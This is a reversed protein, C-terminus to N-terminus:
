IYGWFSPWGRTSAILSCPSDIRCSIPFCVRLQSSLAFLTRLRWAFLVLYLMDVAVSDLTLRRLAGLSVRQVKRTLSTKLILQESSSITNSNLIITFELYQFKVSFEGLLIISFNSAEVAIEGGRDWSM